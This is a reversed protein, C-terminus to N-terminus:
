KYARDFTLEAIDAAYHSIKKISERMTIIQSLATLNNHKGFYPIPTITEYLDAIKLQNDIIENVKSVDKTLYARVAMDYTTFAIEAAEQITSYVETPVSIDLDILSIMSRSIQAMHDSIREIRHVLTQYDLCDLPDLSLQKALFPNVAALRIMRLLLFVLKDVEEELSYIVQLLERDMDHFSSLVGRCMSYTIIHMREISSIVSAKSEDLLTQLTIS